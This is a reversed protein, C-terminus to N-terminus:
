ERIHPMSITAGSYPILCYDDSSPWDYRGLVLIPILSVVLLALLLWPGYKQWLTRITDM